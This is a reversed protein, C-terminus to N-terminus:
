AATKELVGSCLSYEHECTAAIEGAAELLAREPLIQIRVTVEREPLSVPDTSVTLGPSKMFDGVREIFLTFAAQTDFSFARQIELAGDRLEIVWKTEEAENLRM